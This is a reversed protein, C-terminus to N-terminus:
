EYVIFFFTEFSVQQQLSLGFQCRFRSVCCVHTVFMDGGEARASKTSSQESTNVNTLVVLEDSSMCGSASWLDNFSRRIGREFWNKRLIRSVVTREIQGRSFIYTTEDGWVCVCVCVSSSFCLMATSLSFDARARDISTVLNLSAVRGGCFM